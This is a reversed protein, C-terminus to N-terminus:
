PGIKGVDTCLEGTSLFHRVVDALLDLGLDLSPATPAVSFNTTVDEILFIMMYCKVRHVDRTARDLADLDFGPFRAGLRAIATERHQAVTLNLEPVLNFSAQFLKLSSRRDDTVKRYERLWQTIAKKSVNKLAALKEYKAMQHALDDRLIELLLDDKSRFYLYIAARSLQARRAIEEVSSSHFDKEYFIERAASLIRGQTMTSKAPIGARRRTTM